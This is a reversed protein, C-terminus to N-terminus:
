FEPHRRVYAEPMLRKPLQAEIDIYGDWGLSYLRQVVDHYKSVIREVKEQNHRNQAWQGVLKSLSFQLARLTPDIPLEREDVEHSM